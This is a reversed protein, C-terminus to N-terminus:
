KSKYILFSNDSIFNSAHKESREILKKKDMDEIGMKKYDNVVDNILEETLKKQKYIIGDKNIFDIAKIIKECEEYLELTEFKSLLILCPVIGFNVIFKNYDERSTKFM